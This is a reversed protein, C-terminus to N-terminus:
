TWPTSGRVVVTGEYHITRRRASEPSLVQRVMARAMAPADFRVSTLGLGLADRSDDFGALALKAPVAVGKTRLWDLCGLAIWDSAAIWLTAGSGLARDLIPSFKEMLRDRGIAHMLPRVLTTAPTASGVGNLKVRKWVSPDQWVAEEFDWESVWPGLAEHLMTGKPLTRRLGELRNRAWEAGQFPSIWAIRGHRRIAPHSGLIAGSERGYALDHFGLWPSQIPVRTPSLVPNELWVAAPIRARHLSSLLPYPDRLHWTSVVAGVPRPVSAPLKGSWPQIEPRLGNRAAEAQIERWFDWERDSGLRLRGDTDQAGLCLLVPASKASTRPRSVRWAHGRRELAGDAALRAFAKRVTAPHVGRKAALDKPSPLREEGSWRGARIEERIEAALAEATRRPGPAIRVPMRGAAWSGGGPRTEIWGLARAEALAAQATAPSCGWRAALSRVSSLRRGGASRIQARLDDLFDSGM